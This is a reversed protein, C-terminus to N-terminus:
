AFDLEAAPPFERAVHEPEIPAGELSSLRDDDVFLLVMLQRTGGSLVVRSRETGPSRGGADTLEITPCTGCGCERGAFTGDFQALWRARDAATVREEPGPAGREIMAVLM